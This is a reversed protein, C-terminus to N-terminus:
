TLANFAPVTGVKKALDAQQGEMPTYTPPGPDQTGGYAM